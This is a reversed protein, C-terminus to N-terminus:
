DAYVGSLLFEVKDYAIDDYNKDSPIYLKELNTGNKDVQFYGFSTGTIKGNLSFAFVGALNINKDTKNVIKVNYYPSYKDEVKEYSIEYVSKENKFCSGTSDYLSLVSLSDLDVNVKDYEEPGMYLGYYTNNYNACDILLLDDDVKNGAADYAKVYFSIDLTKKNNNKVSYLIYGNSERFVENIEINKKYNELENKNTTPLISRKRSGLLLIVVVVLVVFLVVGGIIFPLVNKKNGNNMPMNPQSFNNFQNDNSMTTNNGTLNVSSIIQPEGNMQPNNNTPNTNGDFQSFDNNGNNFENM